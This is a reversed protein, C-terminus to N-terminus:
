EWRTKREEDNSIVRWRLFYPKESERIMIEAPLRAASATQPLTAVPLAPPLAPVPSQPLALAPAARTPPPLPSLVLFVFFLIWAFSARRATTIHSLLLAHRPIEKELSFGEGKASRTENNKM